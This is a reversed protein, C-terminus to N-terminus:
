AARIQGGERRQASTQLETAEPTTTQASRKKPATQQGNSESTPHQSSQLVSLGQPSLSWDSDLGFLLSMDRRVDWPLTKDKALATAMQSQLQKQVSAYISPATAQVADVQRKTLGGNALGAALTQAPHDVASAQENFAWVEQDNPTKSGYKPAPPVQALLWAAANKAAGALAAAVNPAHGALPAVPAEFNGSKMAAQLGAVTDQFEEHAEATTAPRESGGKVVVPEGGKARKVFAKVGRALEADVAQTKKAISQLVSLRDFTAAALANGRMRMWKHALTGAAAVGAGVLNGSLLAHMGPLVGGIYESMGLNRNAQYADTTHQASKEFIGLAQADHNAALLAERAEPPLKRAAKIVQQYTLGSLSGPIAQEALKPNVDYKPANRKAIKEALSLAQYEHNLEKLKGRAEPNGAKEYADGIATNESESLIGRIERMHAVTLNPDLAKAEKYVLDDLAKRQAYLTQVPVEYDQRARKAAASTSETDAKFEAYLKEELDDRYREVKGAIGSFGAKAKLDRILEDIQGFVKKASVKAGSAALLQGKEDGVNNKAVELKELLEDPKVPADGVLGHKHLVNGVAEVGGKVREAEATERANPDLADWAQRGQEDSLIEANAKLIENRKAMAAERAAVAKPLMEQPTLAAATLPGSTPIIGANIAARGVAAAGGDVGGEAIPADAAKTFAVYGGASKFAQEEAAKSLYPSAKAVTTDFLDHAISGSGGLAAGLVANTWAGHGVASLFKQATLHHDQNPDLAAESIEEGAGMLGGLTADSAAHTAVKQGARALWTEGETGIIGEAAKGVAGAARGAMELPTSALKGLRGASALLGPAEEAAAAGGTLLSPAIGGVLEGAMSWGPRESKYFGLRDQMEAKAAEGGVMEAARTALWDSTGLTAMRPLGAVFAGAEAHEGYRKEQADRHAIDPHIIEAGAEVARQLNEPRVLGIEGDRTVPIREDARPSWAGSLYAANMKEPAITKLAELGALPQPAAVPQVPAQQPVVEPVVPQTM